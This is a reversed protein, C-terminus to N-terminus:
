YTVLQLLPSVKACIETWFLPSTPSADGQRSFHPVGDGRTGAGSCGTRWRSASRPRMVLCGDTQKGTDAPLSCCFHTRDVVFIGLSLSWQKSILGPNTTSRLRHLYCQQHSSWRRRGLGLASTAKLLQMRATFSRV